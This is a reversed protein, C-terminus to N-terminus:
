NFFQLIRQWVTRRIAPVKKLPEIVKPEFYKDKLSLDKERGSEIKEQTWRSAFEIKNSKIWYHSQCEFSWNGISPNLTVSKGNFSLKWDTPSIPTVVENGCGCACKHIATCYELSIYLIGEEIHEPIFEVFKHQLMKM